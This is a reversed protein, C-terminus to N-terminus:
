INLAEPKQVAHPHEAGEYVKLKTLMQRGLKTKPLMGKVCDILIFTPDMERMEKAKFEKLSGFFRSHRYYMKEDWKNGTMAVNKANIVVVFDGADTHPTFTPQHKGSLVSAIKTAMRGLSKGDADVLHWKRDVEEKKAIWTRM